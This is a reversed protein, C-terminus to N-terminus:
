LTISLTVAIFLVPLRHISKSYPCNVAAAGFL